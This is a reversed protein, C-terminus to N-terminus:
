KIVNNCKKLSMANLYKILKYSICNKMLIYSTRGGENKM